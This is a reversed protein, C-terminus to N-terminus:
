TGFSLIVMIEIYPLCQNSKQRKHGWFAREPRNNPM